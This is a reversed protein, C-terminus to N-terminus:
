STKFNEMPISSKKGLERVPPCSTASSLGKRTWFGIKPGGAKLRIKVGVERM